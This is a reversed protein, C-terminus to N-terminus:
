SKARPNPSLDIADAVNYGLETLQRPVDKWRETVRVFLELHVPRELLDQLRERAKTGISKIREGQKGVVVGRQSTKEVHITAKIQTNKETEDFRDVTVAVAHPLEAHLQLMIQERVYERVFFTLPKDTLMDPDYGPPGEPLRPAIEDLVIQVGDDRLVSVPVIASFERLESLSQLYPLLRTKDKLSDVKNVVFVCPVAAPLEAILRRDAELVLDPSPDPTRRLKTLHTVDTMLVVLDTTRLAELAALNMRRGLEHKPDHLGPTDVFAIQADGHQSVGLLVDRTTQPLPSTIALRQGLVANLFTSKGVNTRGVIACSGFRM